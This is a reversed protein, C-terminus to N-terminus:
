ARDDAGIAKQKQLRDLERLRYAAEDALRTNPALQMVAQYRDRASLTEGYREACYGQLLELWVEHALPRDLSDSSEIRARLKPCDGSAYLQYAAQPDIPDPRSPSACALAVVSLVLVPRGRPM